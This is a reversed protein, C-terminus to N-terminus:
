QNLQAKLNYQSLLFQIEHLTKQNKARQYENVEKIYDNTTIAGNELQALAANKISERLLIIEQDKAALEQNKKTESTTEFLQFQQNFLFLERQLETQNIKLDLIEEENKKTYFSSIPISLRAGAMYFLSFDNKLMNYGPKGYGGQFFLGLKPLNRSSIEAKQITYAQTQLDFLQLEARKNEEAILLKEPLQFATNEDLNKNIFYSLSQILQNKTAQLEIQQQQLVLLQAKLLDLNSRFIVGNRLQVEAKTIGNSIDEQTLKTQALFESTQLIGFFLQNIRLKILDLDTEVKQNEISSNITALQKRNKSLGGDFINQQVDGYIKYQDKSMPDIAIMPLNLPLKTVENQYSAQGIIQIQPLWGKQINQLTYEKTKEILQQQKIIPYNKRALDYCQEISLNQAIAPYAFFLILFRFIKMMNSNIPSESSILFSISIM